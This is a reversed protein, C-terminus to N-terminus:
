EKFKLSDNLASISPLLKEAFKQVGDNDPDYSSQIWINAYLDNLHKKDDDSLVEKALIDLEIKM